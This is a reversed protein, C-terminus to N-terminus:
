SYAFKLNAITENGAYYSLVLAPEHEQDSEDLLDQRRFVRRVADPGAIPDLWSSLVTRLREKVALRAQEEAELTAAHGNGRTAGAAELRVFYSTWQRLAYRAVADEVSEKNADLRLRVMREVVRVVGFEPMRPFLRLVM